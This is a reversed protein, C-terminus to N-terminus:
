FQELEEPSLRRVISAKEYDQVANKYADLGDTDFFACYLMNFYHFAQEAEKKDLPLPKKIIDGSLDIMMYYTNDEVILYHYIGDIVTDKFLTQYTTNM